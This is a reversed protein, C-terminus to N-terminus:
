VGSALPAFHADQARRLELVENGEEFEVAEACIPEDARVPGTLRASSTLGM